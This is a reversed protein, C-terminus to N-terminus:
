IPSSSLSLALSGIREIYLVVKHVIISNFNPKCVLKHLQAELKKEELKKREETSLPWFQSWNSASAAKKYGQNEEHDVRKGNRNCWFFTGQDWTTLKQFNSSYIYTICKHGPVEYFCLVFNMPVPPILISIVYVGRLFEFKLIKLGHIAPRQPAGLFRRWASSGHIIITTSSVQYKPGSM